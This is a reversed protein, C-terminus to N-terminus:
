KTVAKKWLGVFERLQHNAGDLIAQVKDIMAEHKQCEICVKIPLEIWDESKACFMLTRCAYCVERRCLWCHDASDVQKACLDCISVYRTTEQKIEKRMTEGKGM